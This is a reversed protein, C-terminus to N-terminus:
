EMKLIVAIIGGTSDKHFFLRGDNYARQKEWNWAIPTGNKTQTPVGAPRKPHYPDIEEHEICGTLLLAIIALKKM